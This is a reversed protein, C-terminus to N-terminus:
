KVRAELAELRVLIKRQSYLPTLVQRNKLEDITEELESIREELNEICDLGKIESDTLWCLEKEEKPLPELLREDWSEPCGTEHGLMEFRDPHVVAKEGVNLVLHGNASFYAGPFEALLSAMSKLKRKM